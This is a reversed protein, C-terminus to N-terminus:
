KKFPPILVLVMVMQPRAALGPINEEAQASELMARKNWFVLLDVHKPSSFLEVLRLNVKTQKDLLCLLPALLSNMTQPTFLSFLTPNRLRPSLTQNKNRLYWDIFTGPTIKILRLSLSSKRHSFWMIIPYFSCQNSFWDKPSVVTSPERVLCNNPLQKSSHSRATPFSVFSLSSLQCSFMNRERRNFLFHIIPALFM